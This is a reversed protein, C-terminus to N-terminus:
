EVEHWNFSVSYLNGFSPGYRPATTVDFIVVPVAINGISLHLRKGPQDRIALLQRQLDESTTGDGICEGCLGGSVSGSYGHLSQVIRVDYSSNLPQHTTGVETLVPEVPTEGSIAIFVDNDLDAVWALASSNITTATPNASSTQNNVIVRVEYELPVTPPPFYDSWSYSTGSKNTDTGTLNTAIVVGNRSIEFADPETARDWSLTVYPKPNHNVLQLNTVPSVAATLVYTFSRNATAYTPKSLSNVTVPQRKPAYQDWTRIEFIYRKNNITVINTAPTISNDDGLFVPSQVLVAFTTADYIVYQYQTQTVGSLTWALPPTSDEVYDLPAAAPNTISLTGHDQRIYRVPDSWPSWKGDTGKLSGIWYYGSGNAATPSGSISSLVFVGTTNPTEASSWLPSTFAGSAGVTATNSLQVRMAQATHGGIFGNTDLYLDPQAAAVYTLETGSGPRPNTPKKHGVNYTITLKPEYTGKGYLKNLVTGTTNVQWGFWPTGTTALVIHPTVDVTIVTKAAAVSFTGTIPDATRVPPRTKWTITSAGWSSTIAHLVVDKVGVWTANVTLTLSASEVTANAPLSVPFLLYAHDAGVSSSTTTASEAVTGTEVNLVTAGSKGKTTATHQAITTIQTPALPATTTM